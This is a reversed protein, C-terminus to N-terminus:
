VLYRARSQRCATIASRRKAATSRADIMFGRLDVTSATADSLRTVKHRAPYDFEIVTAEKLDGDRHHAPARSRSLAFSSAAFADGRAGRISPLRASARNLIVEHQEIPRLSPGRHCFEHRFAYIATGFRYLWRLSM